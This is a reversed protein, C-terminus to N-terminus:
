VAYGHEKLAAIVNRCVQAHVAEVSQLADIVAFRAPEQEALRLYGKRVKEHFLLTKDEFRGEAREIGEATNRSRSRQLGVAVPCDFLITLDPHVANLFLEHSKHILPLPVGGAYGQYAVTADFFRDCLVIKNGNLAPEIVRSFHQVRAATILLLETLPLIEKNDSHVFIGRIKEGVPTGGPERTVVYELNRKAFFSDLLKVQTSKGCGEIGECVIFLGM